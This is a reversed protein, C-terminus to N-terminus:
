SDVQLKHKSNNLNLSHYGWFDVFLRISLVNRQIANVCYDWTHLCVKIIARYAAEIGYHQAMVHINNTYLRTLDLVDCYKYMEQVCVNLSM